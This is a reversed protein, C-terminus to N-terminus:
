PSTKYRWSCCAGASTTSRWTVCIHGPIRSVWSPALRLSTPPMVRAANEAPLPCDGIEVVRGDRVAVEALHPSAGTGGFVMGHHILLDRTAPM